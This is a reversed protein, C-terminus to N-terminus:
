IRIKVMRWMWWIGILMLALAFGALRIGLPDTWLKAIFDRNVFSIVLALAFPLISLIWASLRGEASLVRISGMLKQRERILAAIGGLIEALNGGTDRQILVAVVFYRLDSTSVRVALDGLAKDLPIGFNIEDFVALFEGAIPQPGETGVLRLASSFAHGAQMARAMLDLADPLQQGIRQMRQRRRRQVFGTWLAAAVAAVALGLWWPAGLMTAAVFGVLAVAVAIALFGAVTLTMGSQLLFRDLVHIRPLLLLAREVAPVDSLLRKRILPAAVIDSGGASLVQLRRQIRRAEPGSYANWALYLGELLLVVALFGLVVFLSYLPDM